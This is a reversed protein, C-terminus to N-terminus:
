FYLLYTKLIYQLSHTSLYLSPLTRQYIKNVIFLLLLHLVQTVLASALKGRKEGALSAVGATSGDGGGDVLFIVHALVEGSM